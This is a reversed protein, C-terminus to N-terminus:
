GFHDAISTVTDGGAVTYDASSPPSYAQPVEAGIELQQGAFILNPDALNNLNALDAVSFGYQDAIGSLTEGPLVTHTQLAFALAPILAVAALGAVLLPRARRAVRVTM